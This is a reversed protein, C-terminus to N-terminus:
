AENCEDLVSNITNLSISIFMSQNIKENPKWGTRNLGFTNM